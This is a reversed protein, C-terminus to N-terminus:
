GGFVTLPRRFSIEADDSSYAHLKGCTCNWESPVDSLHKYEMLSVEGPINPCLMLVRTVLRKKAFSQMLRIDNEGM